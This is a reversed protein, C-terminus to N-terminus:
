IPKGQGPNLDVSGMGVNMVISGQGTGHLSRAVIFHHNEGDKRHDHLSGLGINVELGEYADANGQFEVHGYGVNITEQKGGIRDAVLALDGRGLNLTLDPAAAPIEITVKARLRHFLHLRLNVAHPMVELTQLYDVATHQPSPNEIDVTVRLVNDAAGTLMVDAACVDLAIEAGADVKRSLQLHNASSQDGAALTAHTAPLTGPCDTSNHNEAAATKASLFTAALLCSLLVTINLRSLTKM